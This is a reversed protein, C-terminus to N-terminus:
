LYEAHLDSSSRVGVDKFSHGLWQDAARHGRQRLDDLFSWETETKSAMSLDDLWPDAGISHILMNRFRGRASEKLLGDGILKQVFAIARMEGILGANFSIENLRDLIESPTRPTIARRFPNLSIILVDSPVPDYFLPWLAPNALYGGDWYPEGELDVAQFLQPLCASALLHQCTLDANRFVRSEGSRVATASVYLRIQDTGRLAAFDVTADLVERLPNLDFPNFDYPSTPPTWTRSLGSFWNFPAAMATWITSDGFINRGGAQNVGRWFAELATVGGAPGDKILGAAYAVGNMAGASAGTIACIEIRGDEILREIVGWQFAAHSGGGQLALCISKRAAVKGTM